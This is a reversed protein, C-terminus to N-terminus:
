AFDVDVEKKEKKIYLLRHNCHLYKENKKQDDKYSWCEKGILRNCHPCIKFSNYNGKRGCIACEFPVTTM